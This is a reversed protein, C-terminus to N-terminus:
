TNDVVLRLHPREPRRRQERRRKAVARRAALEQALERVSAATVAQRGDLDAADLAQNRRWERIASTSVGLAAAAHTILLVSTETRSTQM